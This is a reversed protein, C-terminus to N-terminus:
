IISHDCKPIPIMIERGVGLDWRSNERKEQLLQIKIIDAAREVRSQDITFTAIRTTGLIDRKSYYINYM